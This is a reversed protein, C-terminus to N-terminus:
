LLGHLTGERPECVALSRLLAVLSTCHSKSALSTMAFDLQRYYSHLLKGVESLVM